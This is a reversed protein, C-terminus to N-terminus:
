AHLEKIAKIYFDKIQNKLSKEHIQRRNKAYFKIYESWLKSKTTFLSKQNYRHEFSDPDSQILQDSLLEDIAKNFVIQHDSLEDLMQEVLENPTLVNQSNLTLMLEMLNQEQKSDEDKEKLEEIEHLDKQLNDICLRLCAGMQKFFAPDNSFLKPDSIGLGAYFAKGIDHRSTASSDLLVENTINEVRPESSKHQDQEVLMEQNQPTTVFSPTVEEWNQGLHSKAKPQIIPKEVPETVAKTTQHTSEPHGNSQNTSAQGGLWNEPILNPVELDSHISFSDDVIQRTNEIPSVKPRESTEDNRILHDDERQMSFQLHAIPDHSDVEENKTEMFLEELSSAEEIIETPVENLNLLPDNSHRDPAIDSAIDQATSVQELTVGIEYQGLTLTDGECISVPQNKLTKNGNVLTGNTSIDSIYYTDGYISLLCHTSSIFRNHDILTLTCSPDRGISGGGEPIEIHKPGTYEEPCKTIILVLQNLRM